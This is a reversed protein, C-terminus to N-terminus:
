WDFLWKPHDMKLLFLIVIGMSLVCGIYFWIPLKAKTQNVKRMHALPKKFGFIRPFFLFLLVAIFTVAFIVTILPIPDPKENAKTAPFNFFNPPIEGMKLYLAIYPAYFLGALTILLYLVKKQTTM